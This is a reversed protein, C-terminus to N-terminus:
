FDKQYHSLWCYSLWVQFHTHAVYIYGLFGLIFMHEIWIGKPCIHLINIAIGDGSLGSMQHSSTDSLFYSHFSFVTQVFIHVKKQNNCMKCIRDYSGLDWGRGLAKPPTWALSPGTLKVTFRSRSLANILCKVLDQWLNM